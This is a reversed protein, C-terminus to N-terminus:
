LLRLALLSSSICRGVFMHLSILHGLLCDMFEYDFEGWEPWVETEEMLM